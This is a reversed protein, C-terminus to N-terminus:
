YATIIAKEPLYNDIKEREIIEKKTKGFDTSFLAIKANSNHRYIKNDLLKLISMFDDNMFPEIFCLSKKKGKYNFTIFKRKGAFAQNKNLKKQKVFSELDKEALLNLKEIEEQTLNYQFFNKGDWSDSYVILNGKKDIITHTSIEVIGNQQTEYDVIKLNKIKLSQANLLCSIFVFFFIIPTKM